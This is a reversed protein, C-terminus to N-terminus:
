RLSYIPVGFTLKTWSRETTYIPLKFSLGLALCARDGLSLGLGRTQGILDGALRAQLEDFVSVEGVFGAVDNWAEDSNWGRTVLKSQAEAANVASLISNALLQPTLKEHGPEGNVIALIASADLVCRKV